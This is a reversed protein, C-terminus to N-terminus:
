VLDPGSKPRLTICVFITKVDIPLADSVMEAPQPNSDGGRRRNKKQKKKKKEEEKKKEKTHKPADLSGSEPGSKSPISVM